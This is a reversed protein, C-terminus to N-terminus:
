PLKVEVMAFSKPLTSPNAPEQVVVREWNADISTVMPTGGRAVFSGLSLISSRKPTYVLGSGKRRLFKVRTMTAPGSGTLGIAPLGANGTGSDLGRSDSGSLNMNFAYKLMNEVRSGFPIAAPLVNPGTLSSNASIANNFATEVTM